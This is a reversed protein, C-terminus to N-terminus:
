RLDRLKLYKDDLLKWISQPSGNLIKENILKELSIKDIKGIYIFLIVLNNEKSKEKLENTLYVSRKGVTESLDKFELNKYISEVIGIDGIGKEDSEYFM